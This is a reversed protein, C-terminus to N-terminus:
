FLEGQEVGEATPKGRKDKGAAKKAGKDHQGQRMEETYWAHNLSLLQKVL